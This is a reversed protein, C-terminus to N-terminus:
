CTRLLFHIRKYRRIPDSADDEYRQRLGFQNPDSLIAWCDTLRCLRWWFSKKFDLMPYQAAEKKISQYAQNIQKVQGPYELSPAWEYNLSVVAVQGRDALYTAFEKAGEKDGGVYGGGHVWFVVPVKRLVKPIISTLHVVIM